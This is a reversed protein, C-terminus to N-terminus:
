DRLEGLEAADLLAGLNGFHAVPKYLTTAKDDESSSPRNLRAFAAAGM